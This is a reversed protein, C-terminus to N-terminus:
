PQSPAPVDGWELVEVPDGVGIAGRRPSVVNTGFWVSGGTKRYSALTRLPEGEPDRAGSVQDVTPVRCRACLKVGEFVRAGITFRRWRDEEHPEGASVIVNPRFQELPIERGVRRNLERGSADSLVLVPYGDALSVRRGPAYASDAERHDDPGMYVLRYAGGLAQSIWADAEAGAGRVELASTWVRVPVGPGAHPVEVTISGAGVAGLTLGDESLGADLRALGAVQRQSVFQGQETVVMWRRDGRPGVEDFELRPVDVGRAGKLPYIRLRLVGREVM